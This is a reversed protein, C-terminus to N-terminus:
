LNKLSAPLFCNLGSIPPCGNYVRRGAAGGERRCPKLKKIKMGVIVLVEVVIEVLVRVVVVVEFVVVEFVVVELVVVVVVFFFM